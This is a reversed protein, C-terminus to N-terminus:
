KENWLIWKLKLTNTRRFLTNLYTHTQTRAHMHTHVHMHLHTNTHAYKRHTQTCAHSVQTHKWTSMLTSSWTLTRAVGSACSSSTAWTSAWTLGCNTSISSASVATRYCCVTKLMHVQLNEQANTNWSSKESLAKKKVECKFPKEGSHQLSHVKLSMSRKFSKGCTECTFPM